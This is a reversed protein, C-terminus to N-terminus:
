LRAIKEKEKKFNFGLSFQVRFWLGIRFLFCFGISLFARKPRAGGMSGMKESKKVVKELACL